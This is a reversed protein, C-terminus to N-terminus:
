DSGSAEAGPPGPPQQTELRDIDLTLFHTACSICPDYTRIITECRRTASDHDLGLLDPVAAVLDAEIRAQNQSTPPVIRAQEILGDANVRYHHYLLGRPAETAGSGSSASFRVPELPPEPRVYADIIDLAEACAHVLEVARVIISEHPNTVPLRLQSRELAKIARPHLKEAHQSIRALPGCLYPTGDSLHCYLANSREVHSETFALEFDDVPVTTSKRDPGSIAIHDGWELPYDTDSLSVFVYDNDAPPMDLKTAWEVATLSDDLAQALAPRLAGLEARTPARSFGGVRVSIPHIARGGLVELLHNGTKKIQLGREVLERHDRAMDIASDYGLFDPAHLLFMHLAHSEIWEGCYMLRRLARIEPSPTSGLANELARVGSMQYAVPCIGCIRAVIDPVDHLSRGRLLAEFFRPAEFISLHAEVVRDGDVTVRFRGEGVVRTMLDVKFTKTDSM